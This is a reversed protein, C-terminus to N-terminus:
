TCERLRSAATQEGTACTHYAFQSNCRLIGFSTSFEWRRSTVIPSSITTSLIYLIATSVVYEYEDLHVVVLVLVVFSSAVLSWKKQEM